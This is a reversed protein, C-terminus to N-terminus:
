TTAKQKKGPQGAANNQPCDKQFHKKSGCTHCGTYGEPMGSPKGGKGGKGGKGSPRLYPQVPAKPTPAKPQQYPQRAREQAQRQKRTLQPTGHEAATGWRPTDNRESPSSHSPLSPMPMGSIVSGTGVPRGHQGRELKVEENRWWDGMPGTM